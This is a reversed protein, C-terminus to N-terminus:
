GYLENVIYDEIEAASMSEVTAHAEKMIDAGEFGDIAKLLQHKDADTVGPKNDLGTKEVARKLARKLDKRSLNM